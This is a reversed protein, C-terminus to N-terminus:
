YKKFVFSHVNGSRKNDYELLTLGEERGWTEIEKKTHFTAQPTIIYDYFFNKSGYWTRKGKSKILHVFHYIPLLTSYILSKGWDRKELWRIPRGLYTYFYYYYRHRQYVACFMYGNKKLLSANEHFSKRADPTHHIVGDSVVIDFSESKIPLALNTGCIYQTHPARNRSLKISGMSLDFSTVNFHRKYLFLTARGPGCGVDIIQDTDKVYKNVFEKFPPPQLDEIREEDEKSLFDFPFENYHEQSKTQLPANSM